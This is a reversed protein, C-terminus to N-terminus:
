PVNYYRSSCMLLNRCSIADFTVSNILFTPCIENSRILSQKILTKADICLFYIKSKSSHIIFNKFLFIRLILGTTSSFLTKNNDLLPM